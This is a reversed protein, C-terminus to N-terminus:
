LHHGHRWQLCGGLQPRMTKEPALTSPLWSREQLGAGERALAAMELLILEQSPFVTLLIPGTFTNLM